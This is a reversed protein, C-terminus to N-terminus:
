FWVWTRVSVIWQNKGHEDWNTQCNWQGTTKKFCQMEQSIGIGVTKEENSNFSAEMFPGISMEPVIHIGVPFRFGSRSFGNEWAIGLYNVSASIRPTIPKKIDISVLHKNHFPVTQGNWEYKLVYDVVTSGSLSIGAKYNNIWRSCIVGCDVNAAFTSDCFIDSKCDFVTLADSASDPFDERFVQGADYAIKSNPVNSASPFYSVSADFAARDNKTSIQTHFPVAMCNHLNLGCQSSILYDSLHSQVSVWSYYIAPPEGTFCSREEAFHLKIEFIAGGEMGCSADVIEEGNSKHYVVDASFPRFLDCEMSVGNYSQADSYLWNEKTTQTDAHNMFHGFFLYDEKDVNFNGLRVTIVKPLAWEVLREHWLLTSDNANISGFFSLHMPSVRLLFRSFASPKFRDDLGVGGTGYSQSSVPAAQFSLIPEFKRVCPNEAYFRAIDSAAWPEYRKLEWKEIPFGGCDIGDIEMLERLEGDPVNIKQTYFKQISKFYTTDLVGDRIMAEAEIEDHPIVVLQSFGGFISFTFTAAILGIRISFWDIKNM